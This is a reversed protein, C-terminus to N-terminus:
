QFHTAALAVVSTRTSPSADSIAKLCSLLTAGTTIVDDVIMVHRGAIEGPRDVACSGEANIWREWAGRSTQTAHPRTARLNTGVPIGTVASIGNAIEEAQNYGRLDRKSKHIPVPLLLDVGDFFNDALIESAYLEACKRAISPLGRYKADHIIATYANGRQYHLWAGARDTLLGPAALREHVTNFALTHIGTRPLETLCHLCIAEEGEVLSNHCVACVEPYIIRALASILRRASAM